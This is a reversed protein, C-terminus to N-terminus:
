RPNKFFPTRFDDRFVKEFRLDADTYPPIQEDPVGVGIISDVAFSEPIDLVSRVYSESSRGDRHFRKRVQCWCAGLGLAEAQFLLVAAAISTDEVWVDCEELEALVAVAVKATKLFGSGHTKCQALREIRSPDEVVIFRWPRINRSSPSLLAARILRDVTEEPIPTNKFKRVSRRKRLLAEFM